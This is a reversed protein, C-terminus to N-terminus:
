NLSRLHSCQMKTIVKFEIFKDIIGKDNIPISLFHTLRRRQQAIISEIEKLASEVSLRDSGEIQIKGEFPKKYPMNIRTNTNSEIRKRCKRDFKRYPVFYLTQTTAYMIDIYHQLPLQTFPINHLKGLLQCRYRLNVM